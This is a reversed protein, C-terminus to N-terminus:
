FPLLLLSITNIHQFYPPIGILRQLLFAQPDSDVIL